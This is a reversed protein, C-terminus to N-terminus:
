LRRDFVVVTLAPIAVAILITLGIRTALSDIGLWVLALAVLAGIAISARQAGTRRPFLRGTRRDPIARRIRRLVARRRERRRTRRQRRARLVEAEALRVARRRAREKSM